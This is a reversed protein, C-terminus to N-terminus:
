KLVSSIKSFEKALAVTMEDEIGFISESLVLANELSVISQKYQLLNDELVSIDYFALDLLQAIERKKNDACCALERKLSKIANKVHELALFDKGLISFITGYNLYTRGPFLNEQFCVTLAKDIFKLALSFKGAKRHCISLNNLTEVKTEAKLNKGRERILQETELLIKMCQKIQGKELMQLAKTNLIGLAHDFFGVGPGMLADHMVISKKLIQISKSINGVDFLKDATETM